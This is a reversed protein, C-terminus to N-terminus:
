STLARRRSGSDSALASEYVGVIQSTLASQRFRTPAPGPNSLRGTALTAPLDRLAATLADLSDNTVTLRWNEPIERAIAHDRVLVPTGVSIAEYVTLGQTEFGLSSQVVADAHRMARIMVDHSVAGHFRVLSAMGLHGSLEECRELDPGSGYVHLEADIRSRALAHLVDDLRKEESIRGPWVLIPRVNPEHDESQVRDIQPDDVGTPIVHLDRSVGYARLSEAFHDTPVIVADAADAFAQVYGAMNRVRTHMYRRQAAYILHFATRAMPILSPLGVAINTHMTHVVPPGHRQAFRYGNWAGWVDAQIHVVDVPPLEAFGTDTERDTLPGALRFSHDGMQRSRLLVDHPRAYQPSPRRKSDPACVTVLHGSAELYKRQLGPSVQLGGLTAPHQDSFFAVHM